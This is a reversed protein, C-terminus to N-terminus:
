DEDPGKELKKYKLLAAKHNTKALGAESQAKKCTDSTEEKAVSTELVDAQATKLSYGRHKAKRARELIEGCESVKLMQIERALGAAVVAAQRELEQDSLKWKKAMMIGSAKDIKTLIEGDFYREKFMQVTALMKHQLDKDPGLIGDKVAKTDREIISAVEHWDEDAIYEDIGSHAYKNRDAYQQIEFTAHAFSINCLGSLTTIIDTVPSLPKEIPTATDPKDNMSDQWQYLMAASYGERAEEETELAALVQKWTMNALVDRETIKERALQQSKAKFVSVNGKHYDGYRLILRQRYLDQFSQLLVSYKKDQVLRSQLIAEQRYVQLQKKKFLDSGKELTDLDAYADIMMDFHMETAPSIKRVKKLEILEERSEELSGDTMDARYRRKRSFIPRDNDPILFKEAAAM